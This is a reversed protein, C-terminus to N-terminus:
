SIPCVIPESSKDDLAKQLAGLGPQKSQLWAEAILLDEETKIALASRADVPLTGFRGCCIGSGNQAMSQKFVETRWAMVSYCLVEIPELDQTRALKTDTRFNIPRGNALAHRHLYQSAIVSDFQGETILGIAQAVEYPSLLPSPTNVISTVDSPHREMFDLIVEDILVSSQGLHTPRLYFEVGGDRAVPAFVSDDGNLV